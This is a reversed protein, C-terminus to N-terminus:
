YNKVKDDENIRFRYRLLTELTQARTTTVAQRKTLTQTDSLSFTDSCDKCTGDTPETSYLFHTIDMIHNEIDIRM